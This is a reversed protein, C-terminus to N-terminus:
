RNSGARTRQNQKSAYYERTKEQASEDVDIGAAKLSAVLKKFESLCTDGQIGTVHVKIGDPAIDIEMEAAM